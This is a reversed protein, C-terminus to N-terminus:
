THRTVHLHFTNRIQDNSHTIPPLDADARLLTSYVTEKQTHTDQKRYVYVDACEQDLLNIASQSIISGGLTLPLPLVEEGM